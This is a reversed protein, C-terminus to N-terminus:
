APQWSAPRSAALLQDGAGGGPLSKENFQQQKERIFQLLTTSAAPSQLSYCTIFSCGGGIFDGLVRIVAWGAESEDAGGAGGSIWPWFFKGM